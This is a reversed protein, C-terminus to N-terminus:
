GIKRRQAKALYANGLMEYGKANAKVDEIYRINGQELNGFRKMVGAGGGVFISVVRYAKATEGYSRIQRCLGEVYEQREEKTSPASLFDCYQCKRVCFPIHIYLELPRM